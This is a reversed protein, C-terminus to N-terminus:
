LVELRLNKPPSIAQNGDGYEHAGIDIRTDQLRPNGEVDYAPAIVEKLIDEGANIAPSGVKLSYDNNAVDRFLPNGQIGNTEYGSAISNSNNNYLNYDILHNNSNKSDRIAYGTNNSFINNKIVLHTASQNTIGYNGNDAFTNNVIKTHGEYTSPSGENKAEYGIQMGHNNKVILNNSIENNEQNRLYVGSDNNYIINYRMNNNTWSPTLNRYHFLQIGFHHKNDFSINHEVTTNNCNSINIGNWMNNYTSNNRVITHNSEMVNLATGNSGSVIGRGHNYFKSNQVTNYEGSIWMGEARGNRLDLGDWTIYDHNSFYVARYNDHNSADITVVDSMYNKFTIPAGSRGSNKGQIYEYYTGAKIFVTDGAVAKNVGQQFTKFPNSETGPNSDSANSNNKDVYYTAAMSTSAMLSIILTLFLVSKMKTTITKIIM